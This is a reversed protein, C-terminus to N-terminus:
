LRKYGRYAVVLAAFAILYCPVVVLDVWHAMVWDHM